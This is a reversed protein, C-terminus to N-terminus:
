QRGRLNWPDVGDPIPDDWKSEALEKMGKDNNQYLNDLAQLAKDEPSEALRKLAESYKEIGQKAIDLPNM